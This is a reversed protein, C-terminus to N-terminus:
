ERMGASRDLPFIDLNTVGSFFYRGGSGELSIGETIRAREKLQGAIVTRVPVFARSTIPNFERAKMKSDTRATM